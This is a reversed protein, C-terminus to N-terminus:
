YFKSIFNTIKDKNFVCDDGEDNLDLVGDYDIQRVFTGYPGTQHMELAGRGDNECANYFLVMPNEANDQVWIYIGGRDMAPKGLVYNITSLIDYGFYSTDHNFKM